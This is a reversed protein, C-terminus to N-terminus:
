VFWFIDALTLEYILKFNLHRKLVVSMIQTFFRTIICAYCKIAALVKFKYPLTSNSYDIRNIFNAFTKLFVDCNKYYRPIKM